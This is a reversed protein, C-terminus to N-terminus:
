YARGGSGSLDAKVIAEGLLFESCRCGEGSRAAEVDAGSSRRFLHKPGDSRMTVHLKQASHAADNRRGSSM